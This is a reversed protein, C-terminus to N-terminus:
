PDLPKGGYVKHHMFTPHATHTSVKKHEIVDGPREGTHELPLDPSYLTTQQNATNLTICAPRSPVEGAESGVSYLTKHLAATFETQRPQLPLVRFGWSFM